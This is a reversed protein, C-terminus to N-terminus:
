PAQTECDALLDIDLKNFSKKMELVFDSYTWKVSEEFCDDRVIEADNIQKTLDASLQLLNGYRATLKLKSVFENVLNWYEFIDKFTPEDDPDCLHFNAEANQLTGHDDVEEQILKELEM